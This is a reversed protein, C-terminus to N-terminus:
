GDAACRFGHDAAYGQAGGHHRHSTRIAWQPNNFGGGRLVKDVGDAPGTPNTEPSAGYYNENYWDATWEWVNGAMGLVGYPSAGAPYLDVPSTDGHQVKSYDWENGWPWIRGDEGRAAKEWEAENPLRKGAWQCYTNADDWSIWNVPHNFREASDFARWTYQIPDGKQEGTTKYGTANVFAKFQEVTVETRDIYFGDLTILRQPAEDNFENSRCNGGCESAWTSIQDSSTGRVFPGGPIFIMGTREQKEIVLTAIMREFTVTQTPSHLSVALAHYETTDQQYTFPFLAVPDSTEDGGAPLTVKWTALYGTDGSTSEVPTIQQVDGYGQMSGSPATSIWEEFSQGAAPGNVVPWPGISVAVGGKPLLFDAGQQSSKLTWDTPFQIRYGLSDNHYVNMDEPLGAAPTLDLSPLMETFAPKNDPDLLSVSLAYYAEKNAEFLAIPNSTELAGDTRRRNWTIIYGAQGSAAWVPEMSNINEYDPKIEQWTKEIWSRFTEGQEPAGTTAWPSISIAPSKGSPNFNVTGGVTSTIWDTPVVISFDEGQYTNEKGEEEEKDKEKPVETYATEKQGLPILLISSLVPNDGGVNFLLIGDTDRTAGWGTSFVPVHDAPMSLSPMLALVNTNLDIQLNGPGLWIDKLQTIFASSAMPEPSSPYTGLSVSAPLLSALTGYEQNELANITAMIGTSGQTQTTKFEEKLCRIRLGDLSTHIDYLRAGDSLTITYGPTIVAAAAEGERPCGLAADPFEAQNISTLTFASPDRGLYVALAYTAAQVANAAEEELVIATPMLTPEVAAPTSEVPVASEPTPTPQIGLSCALGSTTVLLAILGLNTILRRKNNKISTKQHM